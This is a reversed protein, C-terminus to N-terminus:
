GGAPVSTITMWYQIEACSADAKVVYRWRGGLPKFDGSWPIQAVLDWTEERPESRDYGGIPLPGGNMWKGDPEHWSWEWHTCSRPSGSAESQGHLTWRLHEGPPLDILYTHQENARLVGEVRDGVHATWEGAGQHADPGVINLPAPGGTAAPTPAPTGSSPAAPTPWAGTGATTCGALLAILTACSGQSLKM